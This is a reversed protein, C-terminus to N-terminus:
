APDNATASRAWARPPDSRAGGAPEVRDPLSRDQRVSVTNLYAPKVRCSRRVPEIGTLDVLELSSIRSVLFRRCVRNTSGGNADNAGLYSRM